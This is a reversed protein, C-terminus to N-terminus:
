LKAIQVQHSVLGPHREIWQLCNRGIRIPENSRKNQFVFPTPLTHSRLWKVLRHFLATNPFEQSNDVKAYAYTTPSQFIQPYSFQIGWTISDKGLVMSHFKGDINSVFFHHIQLQVVPKITKVLYREKGAEMAYLAERTSTFVASFYRRLEREEPLIGAKLANVYAAYKQLFDEKEIQLTERTVPESVVFIEFPSLAAFLDRMESEDLLVQHKLWKSARMVGQLAPTSLQLPFASPESSKKRFEM